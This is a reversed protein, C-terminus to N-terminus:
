VQIHGVTNVSSSDANCPLFHPMRPGQGSVVERRGASRGAGRAPGPTGVMRKARWLYCTLAGVGGVRGRHYNILAHEPECETKLSVESLKVAGRKSSELGFSTDDHSPRGEQKCSLSLM